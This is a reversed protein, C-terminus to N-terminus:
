TASACSTASTAQPTSATSSSAATTPSRSRALSFFDTGRAAANSDFVVEEGPLPDEGVEPPTWDAEDAVPVRVHIGYDLGAQTRTFYWYGGRRSPVSMDTEKIRTRIETFIAERLPALEATQAETWANEAELHAIVEPSEKERMWEYDDVFTHGHHTREHPVKKAVPASTPTSDPVSTSGSEPEPTDHSQDSSTM